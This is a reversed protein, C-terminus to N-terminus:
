LKAYKSRGGSALNLLNRLDKLKTIQEDGWVTLSLIKDKGATTYDIPPYSDCMFQNPLYETATIKYTKLISHLSKIKM